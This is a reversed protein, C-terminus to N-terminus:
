PRNVLQTLAALSDQQAQLAALATELGVFQAELRARKKSLLINLQDIRHSLLEQQNLILDEKRAILGDYSRTMGDVLNQLVDGVGTDQATFLEEVSEPNNRYAGRFDQEDFELTNGAGLRLGVSFLRSIPADEGGFNRMIVRTLRTRILDVTSDGLLPGREMTDSDFSTAEAITAQIENYKEVFATLAEVMQDVDQSVTVTVEEDGTSVLNLTLGNVVNDLTNSSSTVLLPHSSEDGM